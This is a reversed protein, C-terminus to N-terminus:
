SDKINITYIVEPKSGESGQAQVKVTHEGLVGFPGFLAYIYPTSVTSVIEIADGSPPTHTIVTGTEVTEGSMLDTVHVTIPKVETTTMQLDYKKM